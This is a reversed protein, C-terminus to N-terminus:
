STLTYLAESAGTSSLLVPLVIVVRVITFPCIFSVNISNLPVTPSGPRGRGGGSLETAELNVYYDIKIKQPITVGAEVLDEFFFFFVTDCRPWSRVCGYTTDCAAGLLYTTPLWTFGTSLEEHHQHVHLLLRSKKLRSYLSLSLPSSPWGVAQHRGSPPHPTNDKIGACREAPAVRGWRGLPAKARRSSKRELAGEKKNDRGLRLSLYGAM